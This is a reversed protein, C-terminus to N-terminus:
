ISFYSFDAYQKIKFIVTIKIFLDETQQSESAQACKKLICILFAM